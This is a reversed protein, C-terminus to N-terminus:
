HRWSDCGDILARDLVFGTRWVGLYLWIWLSLLLTLAIGITHM